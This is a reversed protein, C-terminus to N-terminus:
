RGYALPPLLFARAQARVNEERPLDQDGQRVVRLVNVREPLAVPAPARGDRAVPIAPLGDDYGRATLQLPAEM